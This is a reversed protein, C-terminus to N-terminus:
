TFQRCHRHMRGFNVSCVKPATGSLRFIANSVSISAAIREDDEESFFWVKKTSLDSLWNWPNTLQTGRFSVFATTQDHTLILQATADVLLAENQTQFEYYYAGALITDGRLPLWSLQNQFTEVNSYSWGSVQSLLEAIERSYQQHRSEVDGEDAQLGAWAVVTGYTADLLHLPKEVLTGGIREMNELSENMRRLSSENEEEIEDNMEIPRSFADGNQGLLDL